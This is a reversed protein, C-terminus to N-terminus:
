SRSEFAALLRAEFQVIRNPPPGSLLRVLFDQDGQEARLCKANLHRQGLIEQDSKHRCQDRYACCAYRTGAQNQGAGRQRLDSDWLRLSRGNDAKNQWEVPQEVHHPRHGIDSAIGGHRCSHCFPFAFEIFIHKAGLIIEGRM